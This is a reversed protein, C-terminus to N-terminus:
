KFKDKIKDLYFNIRRNDDDLYINQPKDKM